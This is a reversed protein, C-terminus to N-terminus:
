YKYTNSSTSTSCKCHPVFTKPHIFIILCLVYLVFDCNILDKNNLRPRWWFQGRRELWFTRRPPRKRETQLRCPMTTENKGLSARLCVCFTPEIDNFQNLDNTNSKCTAFAQGIANRSLNCRFLFSRFKLLVANPQEDVCRRLVIVLVVTIEIHQTTSCTCHVLVILKCHALVLLVVVVLVLLVTCISTCSCAHQLYGDLTCVLALTHCTSNEDSSHQPTWM